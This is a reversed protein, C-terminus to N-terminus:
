PQGHCCEVIVEPIFAVGTDEAVVEYVEESSFFIGPAPVGLM